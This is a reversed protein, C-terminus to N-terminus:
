DLSAVFLKLVNAPQFEFRLVASLRCALRACIFVRYTGKQETIYRSERFGPMQGLIFSYFTM